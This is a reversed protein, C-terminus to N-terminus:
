PGLIGCKCPSVTWWLNWCKSGTTTDFIWLTKKSLYLLIVRHQSRICILPMPNSLVMYWYIWNPIPLIIIFWFISFMLSPILLKLLSYKCCPKMIVRMCVSLSDLGSCGSTDSSTMLRLKMLLFYCTGSISHSIRVTLSRTWDSWAIMGKARTKFIIINWRTVVEMKQNFAKGIDMSQVTSDLVLSGLCLKRPVTTFFLFNQM